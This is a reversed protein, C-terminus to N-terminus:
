TPIQLRATHTESGDVSRMVNYLLAAQKRLRQRRRRRRRDKSEARACWTAQAYIDGPRIEDKTRLRHKFTIQM